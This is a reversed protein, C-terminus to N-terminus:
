FYCEVKDQIKLRLSLYLFVGLLLLPVSLYLVSKIESKYFLHDAVFNLTSGAILLLSFIKVILLSEERQIIQISEGGPHKENENRKEM